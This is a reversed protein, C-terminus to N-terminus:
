EKEKIQSGMSERNYRKELSPALEYKKRLFEPTVYFSDYPSTSSQKENKKKEKLAIGHRQAFKTIQGPLIDRGYKISLATAAERATLHSNARLFDVDEQSYLTFTTGPVPGNGRWDDNSAM